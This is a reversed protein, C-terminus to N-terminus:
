EYSEVESEIEKENDEFYKLYADHCYDCIKGYTETNNFDYAGNVKWRNLIGINIANTPCNFSCRVCCICNKSFVIKGDSLKINNTPCDKICKGCDICKDKDVTFFRGLIRYSPHQILLIASVIRSFLSPKFPIRINNLISNADKPVAYNAAQWMRRVMYNTHRFIMNYPMIYHFEGGFVYGKEALKRIVQASSAENLSLPEGSTKIIYYNKQVVTQLENIFDILISPANFGYIPYAICMIDYSEPSPLNQFGEKLNYIECPVDKKNFNEKFLNCVKSTNGTGSFNYIIANRKIDFKQYLAQENENFYYECNEEKDHSDYWIQAFYPMHKALKDYNWPQPQCCVPCWHGAKLVTYASAFFKHNNHCQWQLKTYMDGKEISDSLCKGGRYAAANKMDDIDLEEKTEDYGHSLLYGMSKANEIKRINDFDIDGDLIKGKSLIPYDKWCDLLKKPTQYFYAKVKGEQNTKIWYHPANKNNLLREICLKSIIKPSIFKALKYYKHNQLIEEWYIDMTDKQYDFLNNLIDGDSFWVGHFNRSAHWNPRLFKEASGGIIKFGDNFTDYGTIRNDYGGGINYCKKWFDKLENKVDREVIKRILVGSDRATVWELPTNLCTHFMLGDNLNDNLMKNHLMASQRLVVFNAVKSELVYREGKLKDAAYCDYASPMLPDGVRAWPHQYDRHGYLAVTSIHIFKPQNLTECIADTINVAGLHNCRKSLVPYHDSKPPIVAALNIVYDTNKVLERCIDIEAIDGFIVQVKDKYLKEIKRAFRRNKRDDLVLTKITGVFDISALERLTEQGMNGSAGTLAINVKIM